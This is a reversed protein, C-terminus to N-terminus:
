RENMLLHGTWSFLRWPLNFFYGCATIKSNASTQTYKHTNNKSWTLLRELAALTVHAKNLLIKELSVLLDMSTLPPNIYDTTVIVRLILSMDRTNKACTFLRETTILTAHPEDLLIVHFSVLPSVTSLLGVLTVVTM